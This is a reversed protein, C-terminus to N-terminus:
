LAVQRMIRFGTVADAQGNHAVRKQLTCEARPDTHAGGLALVEEGELVWEQANGIHNYLGWRNPRGSLTNLLKEGLRVGRSDVSCNVNEAVSEPQNTTAAHQWEEATPLRYHQGSQDSLWSMYDRAQDLSINTAPLSNTGALNTCGTQECYQNYDAIRIEIRSIAFKAVESGPKAPIVVMEPGGGGVALADVCWSRNRSGQGELNRAACPDLDNIEVSRLVAQDPFQDIAIQKIQRAREPLRVGIRQEICGALAGAFGPRDLAYQEPYNTEMSQYLGSLRQLEADSLDGKCRLIDRFEEVHESYDVNRALRQAEVEAAQEAALLLSAERKIANELSQEIGTKQFKRLELATNLPGQAALIATVDYKHHQEVFAHLVQALDLTVLATDITDISAQLQLQLAEGGTETIPAPTVVSAVDRLRSIEAIYMSLITNQFGKLRAEIPERRDGEGTYLDDLMEAFVEELKLDALTARSLSFRTQERWDESEFRPNNIREDVGNANVEYEGQLRTLEDPIVTGGYLSSYVGFGIASLVIAATAAYRVYPPDKSFMGEHFEDISQTRDEGKLALAKKLARWHRRRLSPIPEPQLGQALAKDAPVRNYPHKGTFLEYAVLAVAYVDDSKTPEGGILMEYSAYTPTLAGLSGADFVTKEGDSVMDGPNSVARAIGFDFVKAAKSTTYYINGPKFDSHVIGADHARGLGACIGEIINWADDISVGEPHDRLYDDLPQGDLLEMSMFVTDGERDFDYVGMINPHPIGRTRTAERQLSIFGDKHKSFNENLIKIALYPNREQAEQQRLDLAKYVDGMGGSGIKQELVFRNKLLRGAESNGRSKSDKGVSAVYTTDLPGIGGGIVTADNDVGNIITQDENISDRVLTAADDVSPRTVTPNDNGPSSIVTVDDNGASAIVTVDDKGVPANDFGSSGKPNTNDIVDSVRDPRIATADAASQDPDPRVVTSNTTGARPRVATADSNPNPRVVTEETAPKDSDKSM